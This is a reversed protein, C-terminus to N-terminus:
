FFHPLLTGLLALASIIMIGGGVELVTEQSPFRKASYALIAGVVLLAIAGSASLMSRETSILNVVVFIARFSQWDVSEAVICNVSKLLLECRFFLVGDAACDAQPRPQADM